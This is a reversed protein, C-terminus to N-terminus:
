PPRHVQPKGVLQHGGIAAFAFGHGFTLVGDLHGLGVLGEGVKCPLSRDSFQLGHSASTGVVAPWPSQRKIRSRPGVAIAAASTFSSRVFTRLMPMMAWM